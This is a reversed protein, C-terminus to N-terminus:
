GIHRKSPDVWVGSLYSMFGTAFHPPSKM